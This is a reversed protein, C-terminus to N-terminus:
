HMFRRYPDLTSQAASDREGIAAAPNGAVITRPAIRGRAVAGAAVVVGDGLETGPLVTARQAIWAGDGVVVPRVRGAFTPSQPDHDATLLLAEPSINVRSGITLGGRGDLVAARNVNTEDGIELGGRTTIQVGREVACREGVHAGVLRRLVAVRFRHGPLRLLANCGVVYASFLHDALM